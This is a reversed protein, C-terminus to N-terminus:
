AAGCRVCLIGPLPPPAVLAVAPAVGARVHKLMISQEKVALALRRTRHKEALGHWAQFCRRAMRVTENFRIEALRAHAQSRHEMWEVVFQMVPRAVTARWARM